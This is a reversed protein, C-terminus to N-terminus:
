VPDYYGLADIAVNTSTGPAGSWKVYFGQSSDLPVWTDQRIPSVSTGQTWADWLLPFGGTNAGGKPFVLFRAGSIASPAVSYGAMVWGRRATIPFHNSCATPVSSTAVSLGSQLTHTTPYAASADYDYRCEQDGQSFRYFTSGTYYVAGVRRWKTYGSPATMTSRTKAAPTFLGGVVGTSPNFGAWIWFWGTALSSGTEMGNIGSTGADITGTFATATQGEIALLDFSLTVKSAPTTPDNTIFLNILAGQVNALSGEIADFRAAVTAFGKHPNVGLVVQAAELEDGIRNWAVVTVDRSRKSGTHRYVVAPYSALGAM